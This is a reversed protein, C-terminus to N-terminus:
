SRRRRTSRTTRLSCRRCPSTRNRTRPSPCISPSRRATRICSRASRCRYLGAGIVLAYFGDTDSVISLHATDGPAYSKKDTIIQTSGYSSDWSVEGAGMIWLYSSDAPNRTGPQVATATAQLEASSYKPAGVPLSGEAHGTADTTVDTAPGQITQTTGNEYHRFVLQVHVHTSVPKDDYDLATIRFKETDGAQVAYNVPEVNIRFTSYTALFRGRGTIERNAADTVGAEVTYDYDPHSTGNADVHTPVQITMTGNADLKGTKEAEEDGSYSDSNDSDADASEQDGSSQDDEDEGWWYHQEHYVRYKVQANAVPEGFFYRSDVTVPMTAGELVCKQGSTVQVRYEPKRYDEVHFGGSIRSDEQDGVTITYYGLSADKPLDFDGAVDGTASLPMQKDFVAKDNEDAIVVHVMGPAPLKLANGDHERLIAKWHM